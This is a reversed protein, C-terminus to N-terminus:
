QSGRTDEKDDLSDQSDQVISTSFFATSLPTAPVLTREKNTDYINNILNEKYKLKGFLSALESEKVHNKNRLSQCFALWKKPLREGDEEMHGELKKQGAAMLIFPSNSIINEFQPEIDIIHCM